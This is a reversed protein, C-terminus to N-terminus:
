EELTVPPRLKHANAVKRREILERAAPNVEEGKIYRDIEDYTIGMEGEDTQGVWLGATPARAIIQEPVELARAVERVESKTLNALPLIDTGGDGYKTFYGMIIEAKNGTGVVLYNHTNAWYYWSIMRLRVKVNALVLRSPEGGAAGVFSDYVRDLVIERYPVGFKHIVMLAYEKDLPDSKCPLILALTSGPLARACLGLVVASDVGGSVGVVAGKAGARDVNDKIFRSLKDIRERVGADTVAM